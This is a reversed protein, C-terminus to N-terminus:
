GAYYYKHNLECWKRIDFKLRVECIFNKLLSCEDKALAAESKTLSVAVCMKTRDEISNNASWTANRFMKSAACWAHKGQCDVDSGSTWYTGPSIKSNVISVTM